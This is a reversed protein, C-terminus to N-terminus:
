PKAKGLWGFWGKVRNLWGVARDSCRKESMRKAGVMLVTSLLAIEPPVPVSGRARVYVLSAEFLAKREDATIAQDGTADIVVVLCSEFIAALGSATGIPDAQQTKPKEVKEPIPVDLEPFAQQGPLDAVPEPAQDVKPAEPRPSKGRKLRLSGNAALRPRGTEDAEHLDPAFARGYKDKPEENM